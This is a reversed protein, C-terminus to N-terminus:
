RLCDNNFSQAFIEAIYKTYLGYALSEDVTNKVIARGDSFVVMEQSDVALTLMFDNYTVKGV